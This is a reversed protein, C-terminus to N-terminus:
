SARNRQDFVKTAADLVGSAAKTVWWVRTLDNTLRLTQVHGDQSIIERKLLSVEPWLRGHTFGSCAQWALFQRRQKDPPLLGEVEKVIASPHLSPIKKSGCVRLAIAELDNLRDERSRHVPIGAQTAAGDGDIVDQRALQLRRLVREPRQKPALLWFAMAGTEIAARALTFPASPHLAGSRILCGLAHLHQYGVGILRGVDHSVHYPDSKKDDGALASGPIVAFRRQPSDLRAQIQDALGFIEYLQRECEQQTDEESITM